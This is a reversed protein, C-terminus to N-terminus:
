WNMLFSPNPTFITLDLIWVNKEGPKEQTPQSPLSFLSIIDRIM